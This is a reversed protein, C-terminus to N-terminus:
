QPGLIWYKWVNTIGQKVLIIWIMWFLLYHLEMPLHLIELFIFYCNWLQSAFTCLLWLSNSVNLINNQWFLFISCNFSYVSTLIGLALPFYVWKFHLFISDHWSHHMNTGKLVICWKYQKAHLMNNTNIISNEIGFYSKNCQLIQLYQFTIMVFITQEHAIKVAVLELRFHCHFDSQHVFNIINIGHM